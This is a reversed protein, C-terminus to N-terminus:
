AEDQIRQTYKVWDNYRSVSGIAFIGIWLLAHVIGPIIGFAFGILCMIVLVGVGPHEGYHELYQSGKIAKSIVNMQLCVGDRPLLLLLM